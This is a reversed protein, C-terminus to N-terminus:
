KLNEFHEKTEAEFRSNPGFSLADKVLQKLEAIERRQENLLGLLLKFQLFSNQEFPPDILGHHFGVCPIDNVEVIRRSHDVGRVENIEPRYVVVKPKVVEDWEKDFSMKKIEWEDL